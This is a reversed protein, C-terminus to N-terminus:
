LKRIAEVVEEMRMGRSGKVLIWDGEQLTDALNEIIETKTGNFIDPANMRGRMAGDAAEAAFNGAVFFRAIGSEAAKKGIEGHLSASHDGLELMDGMVMIGRNKGRLTKFTVIAASMSGPNANYTDDIVTVKNGTEFINLRGNVPQFSELGAKIQDADMKLAYGVSAAALANSVMFEGHVGITVPVSEEPLSLVFSIGRSGELLESARVTAKSDSIGYLIINEVDAGYGKMGALRVVRRDDANLIAVGGPLLGALLEGKALMVGDISGVGELHAPGINTIVGIEPGCITALNAIEGPHNMGLEVVALQHKPELNLLTLPLGIENNFNKEPSLTSFKKSVVAVTMERTTTKGNSGTIAAVPIHMKSRHHAAIDGLAEVTDKAAICAVKRETLETRPVDRIRDEAVLIGGAGSQIVESLFEHGDHVEGKIAIFLFSKEVKRSDICVGSFSCEKDGFAIKAGSARVIEAITWKTSGSEM